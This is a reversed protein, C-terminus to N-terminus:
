MLAYIRGLDVSKKRIELNKGFVDTVAADRVIIQTCSVRCKRGM